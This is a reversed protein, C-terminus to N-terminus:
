SEVVKLDLEQIFAKTYYEINYHTKEAKYMFYGSCFAFLALSALFAFAFEYPYEMFIWNYNFRVKVYRMIWERKANQRDYVICIYDADTKVYTTVGTEEEAILFKEYNDSENDKKVLENMYWKMGLSSNIYKRLAKDSCNLYYESVSDLLIQPEITEVWVTFIDIITENKTYSDKIVCYYTGSDEYTLYSIILDDNEITMRNIDLIHLKMEFIWYVNSILSFFNYEVIVLYPM